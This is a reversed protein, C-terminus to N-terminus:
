PTSRPTSPPPPYIGTGKCRWCTEETDHEPHRPDTMAWVKGIGNCDFCHKGPVLTEDTGNM